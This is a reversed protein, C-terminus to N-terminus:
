APCFFTVTYVPLMNFNTGADPAALRDCADAAGLVAVVGLLDHFGRPEAHQGALLDSQRQNIVQVHLRSGSPLM